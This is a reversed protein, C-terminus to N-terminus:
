PRIARSTLFLNSPIAQTVVFESMRWGRSPRSEVHRLCCTDRIFDATMCPQAKRLERHFGSRGTAFDNHSSGEPDSWTPSL